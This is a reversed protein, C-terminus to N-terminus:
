VSLRSFEEADVLLCDVAIHLLGICVVKTNIAQELQLPCCIRGDEPCGTICGYAQLAVRQAKDALHHLALASAYQSLVQGEECRRLVGIDAALLLEFSYYVNMIHM